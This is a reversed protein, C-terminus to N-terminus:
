AYAQSDMIALLPVLVLVIAGPKVITMALFVWSKGAGCGARLIVDRGRRLSDFGAVQFDRLLVKYEEHIQKVYRNTLSDFIRSPGFEVKNLRQPRAYIM